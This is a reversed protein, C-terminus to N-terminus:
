ILTPKYLRYKYDYVFSIDVPEGIDYDKYKNYVEESVFLSNSVANQTDFLIVRKYDKGTNFSHFIDAKLFIFKM